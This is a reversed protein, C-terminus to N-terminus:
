KENGGIIPMEDMLDLSKELAEDITGDIDITQGIVKKRLEEETLFGIVESQAFHLNGKEDRLLLTAEDTENEGDRMEVGEVRASYRDEPTDVHVKEDDMLGFRTKLRKADLRVQWQSQLKWANDKQSYSVMDWMARGLWLLRRRILDAMFRDCKYITKYDLTYSMDENQTCLAQITSDLPIRSFKQIGNGASKQRYRALDTESMPGLMDTLIEGAEMNAKQQTVYTSPYRLTRGNEHDIRSALIHVHPHDTNYHNAAFWTLNRCGVAPAFSDQMFRKTLESLDVHDSQPTLIIRFVNDCGLAKKAMHNSVPIRMDGDYTYVRAVEDATEYAPRGDALTAEKRSIYNVRSLNVDMSGSLGRAYSLKALCVQSLKVGSPVTPRIVTKPSKTRMKPASWQGPRSKKGFPLSVTSKQVGHMRRFSLDIPRDVNPAPRGLYSPFSNKAM